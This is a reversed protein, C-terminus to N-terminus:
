GKIKLIFAKASADCIISDITCPINKNNIIIREKCLLKAENVFKGLFENLDTPKQTGYYIGIVFVKKLDPVFGFIPWFQRQSSKSLPLKYINISIQINAINKSISSITNLISKILDFHYYYDNGCVDTDTNRLTNVLSRPDSPIDFSCNQCTYQKIGKLLLRLSSQSICKTVAWNALFKKFNINKDSKSNSDNSEINNTIDQLIRTNHDFRLNV